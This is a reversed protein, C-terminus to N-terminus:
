LAVVLAISATTVLTSKLSPSVMIECNEIEFPDYVTGVLKPLTNQIVYVVVLVTVVLGTSMLFTSILKDSQATGPHMEQGESAEAKRM